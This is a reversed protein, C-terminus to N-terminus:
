GSDTVLVVIFGIVYTAGFLIPIWQELMSIPRYRLWSPGLAVSEARSYPSAPLREELAAVVKFKAHVLHRYARVLGWWAACEFVAVFLPFILVWSSVHSAVKGVVGIVTFIATNLTLFFTNTLSRRSSVRDVIEVYLKWQELIAAQYKEGSGEYAVSSVTDNWISARIKDDAV